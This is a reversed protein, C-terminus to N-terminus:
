AAEEVNEEGVVQAISLGRKQAVQKATKMAQLGKFTARIVNIPNCSGTSKALINEVGLVKFVARMANGAIIGTGAPAPMMIVDSAGHSSKITHHITGKRLSVRVMNRQSEATAKQIAAPVESSKGIGFGIKGKRDGSVVLASFGFTRGGRTVKSTRMIAVTETTFEEQDTNKKSSM